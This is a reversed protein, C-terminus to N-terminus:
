VLLNEIKKIQELLDEVNYPKILTAFVENRDFKYEQYATVVIIKANPDFKKVENIVYVGDYDPMKMDTVIVDPKLEKYLEVAEKGGRAEGIVNVKKLKLFQSMLKLSDEDDDVIIVKIM